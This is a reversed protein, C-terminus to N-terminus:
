FLMRLIFLSQWLFTLFAQRPGMPLSQHAAIPGPCYGPDAGALLRQM